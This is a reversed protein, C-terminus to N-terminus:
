PCYKDAYGRPTILMGEYVFTKPSGVIILTQMDVDEAGLQDLTILRTEQGPRGCRCALGAPTKPRLKELLIEAARSLQWSRSKSKPNYLAIVLEAEAALRLRKEILEWPTLLDSLSIACFDHTLPAGLLAAASIVAPVGPLVRILLKGPKPGLPLRRKAAMEYVAGAMAYIGSDGGSVVAMPVGDFAMDLAMNARTVEKTMGSAYVQCDETLFPRTQDVYLKYGIVAKARALGSIADLTLGASNGPGLGILDLTYPSRCLHRDEIKAEPDPASGNPSGAPRLSRM